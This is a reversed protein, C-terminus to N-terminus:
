QRGAWTGPPLPPTPRCVSRPPCLCLRLYKKGHQEPSPHIRRAMETGSNALRQRRNLPSAKPTFPPLRPPFFWGFGEFIWRLVMTVGDFGWRLMVSAVGSSCGLQVGAIRECCAPREGLTGSGSPPPKPLQRLQFAQCRCCGKSLRGCVTCESEWSHGLAWRQNGGTTKTTFAVLMIVVPSSYKSSSAPKGGFVKGLWKELLAACSRRPAARSRVSIRHSYSAANSAVKHLMAMLPKPPHPPLILGSRSGLRRLSSLSNM